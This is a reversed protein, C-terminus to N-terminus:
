KINYEMRFAYSNKVAKLFIDKLQMELAMVDTMVAENGNFVYDEKEITVKASIAMNVPTYVCRDYARYFRNCWTRKDLQSKNYAEEIYNTYDEYTMYDESWGTLAIFENYMM